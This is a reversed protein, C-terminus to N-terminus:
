HTTCVSCVDFSKFVIAAKEKDKLGIMAKQAIAPQKKSGNSLNWQTPTIIEYKQIIGEQLSIEHILSGRAAEVTGIGSSNLKKIELPPKIFSPQTLDLGKLLVKNHHLLQAIECVRASIRSVVSDGFKRHCDKILPTKNLMARALAGVEYYKNKYMVNKAESNENITQTVYRMNLNKLIKTKHSKGRTFYNSQGFVFFRDYSKGLEDFGKEIMEDVLLPYDGKASFLREFSDCEWFNKRKSDILTKFIQAVEDIINLVDILMSNTVETSVGGVIAYSNHPYQGALIAIAKSVLASVKVAAQINQKKHFLPLLVLYYWKFHNVILEFNLTIERLDKAKQSLEFGEYCDEIARVTAILHAHNCIGCVRPNIVLADQANKGELIKEIKRSSDFLIQVHEIKDKNFEFDLKAEGEIKEIIEIM